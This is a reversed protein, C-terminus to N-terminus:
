GEGVQILGSQHAAEPPQGQECGSRRPIVQFLNILGVLSVLRVRELFIKSILWQLSLLKDIALFGVRGSTAVLDQASSTNQWREYWDLMDSLREVVLRQGLVGVAIDVHGAWESDAVILDAPLGRLGPIDEAFHDLIQRTAESVGDHSTILDELLKQRDRLQRLGARGSLSNRGLRSLKQLASQQEVDLQDHRAQFDVRRQTLAAVTGEISASSEEVSSGPGM